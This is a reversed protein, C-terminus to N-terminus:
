THMTCNVCKFNTTKLNAHESQLVEAERPWSIIIRYSKDECKDQPKFISGTGEGPNLM